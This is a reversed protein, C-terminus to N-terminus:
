WELRLVNDLADVKAVRLSVVDGPKAAV